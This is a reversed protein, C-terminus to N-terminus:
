YVEIKPCEKLIRRMTENDDDDLREALEETIIRADVCEVLFGQRKLHQYVWAETAPPTM